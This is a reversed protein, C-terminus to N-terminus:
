LPYKTISVAGHPIYANFTPSLGPELRPIRGFFLPDKGNRMKVDSLQSWYHVVTLMM